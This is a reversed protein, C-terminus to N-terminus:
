RMRPIGSLHHVRHFIFIYQTDLPRELFLPIICNALNDTIQQCLIRSINGIMEACAIENPFDVSIMQQFINHRAVKVAVLFSDPPEKQAAYTVYKLHFM